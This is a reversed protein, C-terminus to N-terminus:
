QILFMGSEVDDFAVISGAKIYINGGNGTGGASATIPSNNRLLLVDRVNLEINGGEGSATAASISGQTDLFVSNASVQLTGADGIGRNSTAVRAGDTVSLVPTNIYVNGSFGSPVSPLPLPLAQQFPENFNTATAQVTSPNVAGPVTGSVEVSESANITVSGANGFALTSATVAGRDRVLLRATNVTLQGADGFGATGATVSSPALISSQGIVAVSDLANVTVDGGQSTGWTLSSLTGGNLVTLQRTSVIVNGGSGSSFVFDTINSVFLPNIPSFGNIQVYDSANVTINGNMGSGYSINGIYGGDRLLLQQTFVTISATSGDGATQSHLGGALRGDPNISSIELSQAANVKISGRQQTGQNQILILSGDTLTVNNGQVQISGGGSSDALAQQSLQIDGFTQIGPYSLAFGGDLSVQGDRVSGLEIRGQEATLTSGKLEIDGGILALTRGAPVRLGTSNSGRTLPSFIPVPISLDYGNGQVVIAGPNTGMQLGIPVSVTLLPAAQPNTASYHFNDAFNISNATSAVFSGGINLSAGAGFLIGNPNILFLNADGLVGLRGLIESHSAGTVRTLINEIGPPNTFYAGRGEGINFQSFSHFLNAGRPAGGDIRDGQIGQINVDPTVVSGEAGLTNDPVIQALVSKGATASLTGVIAVSGVLKLQWGQSVLSFKTM